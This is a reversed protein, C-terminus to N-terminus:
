AIHEEELQAAHRTTFRSVMRDADRSPITIGYTAEVDDRFQGSTPYGSGNISKKFVLFFD